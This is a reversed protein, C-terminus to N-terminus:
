EEGALDRLSSIFDDLSDFDEYHGLKLDADAEAEIRQWEPTWYWAQDESTELDDLSIDFLSNASSFSTNGTPIRAGFVRRGALTFSYTIASDQIWHEFTERTMYISKTQVLMEDTSSDATM